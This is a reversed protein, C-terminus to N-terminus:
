PHSISQIQLHNAKSRHPIFIISDFTLYRLNVTAYLVEENSTQVRVDEYDSSTNSATDPLCRQHLGNSRHIDEYEVSFDM